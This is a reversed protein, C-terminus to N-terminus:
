IIPTKGIEVSTALVALALNKVSPKTHGGCANLPTKVVAATSLMSWLGPDM